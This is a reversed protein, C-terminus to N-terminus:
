GRRCWRRCRPCRPPRHRRWRRPLSPPAAGRIAPALAADARASDARALIGSPTRTAAAADAKVHLSQTDRRSLRRRAHARCCASAIRVADGRGPECSPERDVRRLDVHHSARSLEDRHTLRARDLPPVRGPLEVASLWSTADLADDRRCACAPISSAPEVVYQRRREPKALAPAPSEDVQQRSPRSSSTTAAM